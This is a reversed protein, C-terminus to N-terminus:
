YHYPINNTITFSRYIQELSIVRMFQHTFTMKSFSLIFDAKEKIINDLGYSGGIIFTITSNKQSINEVKKSLDESSLEKGEIALVIVYGKLKKLIENAEKQMAISKEADSNNKASYQKINIIEIKAFRKIRKLYEEEANRLYDEKLDGVCILNIKLM